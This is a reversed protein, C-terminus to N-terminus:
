IDINDPSHMPRPKVSDLGELTLIRDALHFKLNASNLRNVRTSLPVPGQM